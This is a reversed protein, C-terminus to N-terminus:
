SYLSSTAYICTFLFGSPINEESNPPRYAGKAKLIIPNSGSHIVGGSIPWHEYGNVSIVSSTKQFVNCSESPVDTTKYTITIQGLITKSYCLM